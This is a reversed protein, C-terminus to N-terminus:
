YMNYGRRGIIPIVTHCIGYACKGTSALTTHLLLEGTVLLVHRLQKTTTDGLGKYWVLVTLNTQGLCFAECFAECKGFAGKTQEVYEYYWTCYTFSIDIPLSSPLMVTVSCLVM